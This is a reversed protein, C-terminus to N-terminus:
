GRSGHPWLWSPEDKKLKAAPKAPVEDAKSEDLRGEEEGNAAEEDRTAIFDELIASHFSQLSAMASPERGPVSQSPLLSSDAAWDSGQPNPAAPPFLSISSGHFADKRREIIPTGNPSSHVSAGPDSMAPAHVATVYSAKEGAALSADRRETSISPTKPRGDDVSPANAPPMCGIGIASSFGGNPAPYQQLSDTSAGGVLMRQFNTSPRVNIKFAESAVVRMRHDQLRRESILVLLRYLRFILAPHLKELEDCRSRPLRLLQCYTDSIAATPMINLGPMDDPTVFSAVGLIAGAGYKALRHRPNNQEGKALHVNNSDDNLDAGSIDGGLTAYASIHGRDLFYLYPPSTGDSSAPMLANPHHSSVVILNPPILVVDMHDFLEELDKAGYSAYMAEAFRSRMKDLHDPRLEARAQAPSYITAATPGGYSSDSSGDSGNGGQPDATGLDDRLPPWSRSTRPLAGALTTPLCTSRDPLGGSGTRAHSPGRGPSDASPQAAAAATPEAHSINSSSSGTFPNPLREGRPPRRREGERSSGVTRRRSFAQAVGLIEDGPHQQQPPATPSSSAGIKPPTDRDAYGAGADSSAGSADLDGPTLPNSEDITRLMLEHEVGGYRPMVPSPPNMPAGHESMHRQLIRNECQELALDLTTFHEFQRQEADELTARAMTVESRQQRKGKGRNLMGLVDTSACAFILGADKIQRRTQFLVNVASSDIASCRDFDLLLFRLPLQLEALTALHAKVEEVVSNASGFFIMGHLHIILVCAGYQELIDQEPITRAVKSRELLTTASQLVGSHSSYQMIFMWGSVLMGLVVAALMGLIATLGIHLIVLVFERMQLDKYASRLNDNLLNLGSAFLLASFMAKPVLAVISSGAFVLLTSGGIVMAPPLFSRAGMDHAVIMGLYTVTPIMGAPVSALQSYGAHQVEVNYDIEMDFLAELASFQLLKGLLNPVFATLATLGAERAAVTWDISSVELDAPLTFVSQRSNPIALSWQSFDMGEPALARVVHFVLSTVFLTVPIVMTRLVGDLQQQARMLFAGITIAAMLQVVDTWSTGHQLFCQPQTLSCGSALTSASDLLLYGISAQYGSMVPTPVYQVVNCVQAYGVAIYSVALFISCLAMAAALTGFAATDGESSGDTKSKIINDTTTAFLVAMFSDGVTVFPLNRRAFLLWLNSLATSALCMSIGHALYPTMAANGGMVVGAYTVNLVLVLVTTLLGGMLEAVTGASEEQALRSEDPPTDSHSGVLRGQRAASPDQVNALELEDESDEELPFFYQHSAAPPGGDPRHKPVEKTRCM